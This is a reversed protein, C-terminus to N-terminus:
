YPSGVATTGTWAREVDCPCAPRAFSGCRSISEEQADKTVIVLRTRRSISPQADAFAEWFGQCTLCGSRPPALLTPHRAGVVSAHVADDRLGAGDLDTADAFPDSGSSRLDVLRPTTPDSVGVPADPDLGAGLETCAGRIEAHAACSGPSSCPSCCSVVTEIVLIANTM